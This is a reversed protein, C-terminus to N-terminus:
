RGAVRVQRASELILAIIYAALDALDPVSIHEQTSHANYGGTALVVARLGKGAFNNADSGGGTSTIVTPHGQARAAAVSIRVSPEDDGFHYGEYQSYWNMEVQAGVERAGTEMAATMAAVQRELKAKDLSRAEGELQVREPVANRATGGSIRGVNATTEPDIRGLPMSAIAKAAAVIASIGKEPEVGAHAARGLFTANLTQQYPARTVITGLPGTGDPIFGFRSRLRTTDFARSGNLGREEGWTFLLEVDGHPAKAAQLHRVAALTAAIAAKDDAALITTGDSKIVGDEIRPKIGRGPEVTDMHMALFIPAAGPDTGSLVALLNGVGNAGSGDNSVSLGLGSLEAALARMFAGEEGTPSDIQVFDMFQRVLRDREDPALSVREQENM